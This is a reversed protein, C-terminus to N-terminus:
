LVLVLYGSSGNTSLMSSEGRVDVFVAKALFCESVLAALSTRQWLADNFQGRNLLESSGNFGNLVEM